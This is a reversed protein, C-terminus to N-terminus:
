GPPQDVTTGNAQAAKRWRHVRLYFSGFFLMGCGNVGVTYGLKYLRGNNSEAFIPVDKGFLLHPLAAPMCAGHLLGLGFGAPEGSREMSRNSARLVWTLTVALFALVLLSRLLRKWLPSAPPPPPLESMMRAPVM